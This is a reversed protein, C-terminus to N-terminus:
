GERGIVFGAVQGLLTRESSEPLDALASLASNGHEVALEEARSYAGREKMWSTMLDIDADTVGNGFKSALYKAEEPTLHERLLILPLTACGERFDGARAKGTNKTSGRYDLLDDALQFAMGIHFGFRGLAQFTSEPAGAVMAGVECCCQIFTATKRRLIEFHEERTLEFKGRIQLEHVEGQALDVVIGAVKRIIAIDGDEALIAMAKALLVDGSLIAATNGFEAAATSVGRRTAAHDIVDDHILTAMHIMEMCAGLRRVREANVPLGTAMASLYVLAPRLRKGGAEQTHQCVRQVLEVESQMQGALEAEVMLLERNIDSLDHSLFSTGIM